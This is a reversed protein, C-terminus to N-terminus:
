YKNKSIYRRTNALWALISTNSIQAGRADSVKKGKKKKQVAPNVELLRHIEIGVNKNQLVSWQAINIQLVWSDRAWVPVATCM